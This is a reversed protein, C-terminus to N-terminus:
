ELSKKNFLIISLALLAFIYFLAYLYSNYFNLGSYFKEYFIYPKYNIRSFDPLFYSSIKIVNFLNVNEKIISLSYITEYAHGIFYIAIANIVALVTNTVLSLNIVLIFVILSELFSFIMQHFIIPILVGGMIKYISIILIGFILVNILLMLVLGLIRGLLFEARSVPRSLIMYLTRNEIENTMLTVGMFIAIGVSSLTMLGLGVDLAVKEQVGYTFEYSVYSVLCLILGLIFVNYLVRSKVLEKLTFFSIIFINRGLNM